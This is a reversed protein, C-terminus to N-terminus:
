SAQLLEKLREKARHIVISVSNASANTREAIVQVDLDEHYRMTLVEQWRAPLKGMAARLREVDETRLLEDLATRQRLAREDAQRVGESALLRQELLKRRRNTIALNVGIRFFWTSFRYQERYLHLKRQARFVTERVIDKATDRDRVLPLVINELAREYREVLTAFAEQDNKRAQALLVNEEPTTV